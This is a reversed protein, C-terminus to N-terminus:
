EIFRMYYLYIGDANEKAKFEIKLGNKEYKFVLFKKADPHHLPTEDAQRIAKKILTQAKEALKLREVYQPDDKYKSIIEEYFTRNIIIPQELVESHKVEFRHAEMKGVKKIPLKDKYWTRLSKQAEHNRKAVAEETLMWDKAILIIEKKIKDECNKVYPHEAMNVIEATKAPNNAFLPNITLTDDEPPEVIDADTNRVSCECGWASPPMHTDWWPDNIPLITGVWSAHEERPTAATTELYEMNPYLDATEMFSKVKAAMRASRVAQTYETKLWTQNYDLSVNNALKRFEDFSRLDSNENTLLAVIDNTQQHNKFASFVSANTKFEDIFPQYTKGFEVGMKGFESDIAQQYSTNSIDYLPKSILPMDDPNIGYQKYIDNLAQNFLKDINIGATYNTSKDDLTLSARSRTTRAVAFFNFMREFWNRDDDSLKVDPKKKSLDTKKPDPPTPLNPDSIVPAPTAAKKAIQEGDVPVPISYKEHLYSAPIDMIDSLSVVDAVSLQEASVPFVFKGGTVPYGRKELIPLLSYNLIRQVFRMDSRNKGEEVAKHVEGLSRAGKDSVVTTMTQGLITILIEENCAKRFDDYAKGSSGNGTNATTEIDSEKPVAIWPASGASELAQELAKKSEPDYSSYKGVRMPMGFLELWQAYDGFGGRKYIAYPATKLLLGFDREKGVILLSDNDIYSIGTSDTENILIQKNTLDIHKRPIPWVNLGNVFNLELGARGWFRSQMIETLLDEWGPSDILDIIEPVEEGNIDQFTLPSNTIADIRKSIADGLIGDVLYDTFLDYLLKVRGLNASQLATSWESVTSSKRVPPRIVIQQVIMSEPTKGSTVTAKTKM